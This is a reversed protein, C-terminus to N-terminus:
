NVNPKKKLQKANHYYKAYAMMVESVIAGNPFKKQNQKLWEHAKLIKM